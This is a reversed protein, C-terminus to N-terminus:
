GSEFTGAACPTASARSAQASRSAGTPLTATNLSPAQSGALAQDAFVALAARPDVSGTRCPAGVSRAATPVVVVRAGIREPARRDVPVHRQLQVHHQEIPGLVLLERLFAHVHREGAAEVLRRAHVSGIRITSPPAQYGCTIPSSVPAPLALLRASARANEHAPM